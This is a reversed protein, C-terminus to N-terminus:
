KEQLKKPTGLHLRTALIAWPSFPMTDLFFNIKGM